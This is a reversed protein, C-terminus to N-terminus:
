WHTTYATTSINKKEKLGQKEDRQDMKKNPWPSCEDIFYIMQLVSLIWYPITEAKTSLYLLPKMFLTLMLLLAYVCTKGEPRGMLWLSNLMKDNVKSVMMLLMHKAELTVNQVKTKKVKRVAKEFARWQIMITLLVGLCSTFTDLNQRM